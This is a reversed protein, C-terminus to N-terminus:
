PLKDSVPDDTGGPGANAQAQERAEKEMTEKAEKMWIAALDALQNAIQQEDKNNGTM